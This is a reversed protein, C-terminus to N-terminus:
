PDPSTARQAVESSGQVRGFLVFGLLEFLVFVFLGFVFCFLYPPNLALQPPGKPWRM